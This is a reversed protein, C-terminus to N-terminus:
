TNWSAGEILNLTLVRVISTTFPQSNGKMM